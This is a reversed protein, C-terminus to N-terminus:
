SGAIGRIKHVLRKRAPEATCHIFLRKRRSTEGSLISVASKKVGLLDAVFAICMKNAAGEVPPATLRIKLADGHLGAVQNKAAKPQVHINLILGDTTSELM